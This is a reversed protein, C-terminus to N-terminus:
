QYNAGDVLNVDTILPVEDDRYLGGKFTIYVTASREKAVEVMKTAFGGRVAKEVSVTVLNGGSDAVRVPLSTVFTRYLRDMAEDGIARLVVRVRLVVRHTRFRHTAVAAGAEQLRAFLAGDTELEEGVTELELRPTPLLISSIGEPRDMVADVAVGAIVAADTIVEKALSRM